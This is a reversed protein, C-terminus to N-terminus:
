AHESLRESAKQRLTFDDDLELLKILAPRCDDFLASMMDAIRAREEGRPFICREHTLIDDRGGVLYESYIGPETQVRDQVWTEFQRAWTEVRTSWYKKSRFGDYYKADALFFSETMARGFQFTEITRGAGYARKEHWSVINQANSLRVCTNKRWDTGGSQVDLATAVDLVLVEIDHVREVGFGIETDAQIHDELKELAYAKFAGDRKDEPLLYDLDGIWRMLSDRQWESIHRERGSGKDGFTTFVAVAEALTLPRRRAENIAETLRNVVLPRGPELTSCVESVPRMQSVGTVKAMWYDFAHGWEHALYGAGKLRTFAMVNRGSDYHACADGGNGRAGFSVALGGGLSMAKPPLRLADALDMFADFAFNLVVQRETQKVWLGYEVGRFGFVDLLMAEDVDKGQRFDMGTRRIHDLHPIFPEPKKEKAVAAGADQLVDARKKIAWEWRGQTKAEALAFVRYFNSPAINGDHIEIDPLTKTCFKWGAGDPFPDTSDMGSSGNNLFRGNESYDIPLEALQRIKLIAQEYDKTTTVNAVADRVITVANVFNIAMSPTIDGAMRQNVYRVRMNYGGRLPNVPLGARLERILYAVVPAIGRERMAEYDLAPWVNDKTVLAAMERVTMSDIDDPTLYRQAYDKRAGGIKEGADERKDAVQSADRARVSRVASKVGKNVVAQALLESQREVHTDYLKDHFQGLFHLFDKPFMSEFLSARLGGAVIMDTHSVFHESPKIPEMMRRMVQQMAPFQEVVKAHVVADDWRTPDLIDDAKATEFMSVLQQADALFHWHRQTNVPQEHASQLLVENPVELYRVDKLIALRRAPFQFGIPVGHPLVVREIGEPAGGNAAIADDETAYGVITASVLPTKLPLGNMGLMQAGVLREVTPVASFQAFEVLAGHLVARKAVRDPPLDRFGLIENLGIASNAAEALLARDAPTTFFVGPEGADFRQQQAVLTGLQEENLYAYDFHKIEAIPMPRMDTDLLAPIFHQIIEKKITLSPSYFYVKATESKQLEDTEEVSLGRRQAQDYARASRSKTESAAYGFGANRMITYIDLRSPRALGCTAAFQTRDEITFKLLNRGLTPNFAVTLKAGFRGLDPWLLNKNNKELM